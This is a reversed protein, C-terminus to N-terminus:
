LFVRVVSRPVLLTSPGVIFLEKSSAGDLSVTQYRNSTGDIDAIGNVFVRPWSAM